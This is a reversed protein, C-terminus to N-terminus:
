RSVNFSLYNTWVYRHIMAREWDTGDADANITNLNPMKSLKMECYVFHSERRREGEADGVQPTRAGCTTFLSYM